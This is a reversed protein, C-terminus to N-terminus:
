ILLVSIATTVIVAGDISANVSPMSLAGIEGTHVVRDLESVRDGDCRIYCKKLQRLLQINAPDSNPTTTESSLTIPDTESLSMTAWM